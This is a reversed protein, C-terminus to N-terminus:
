RVVIMKMVREYNGAQLRYIYVGAPVFKGASNKGNWVVNYYGPPQSANVLTIMERGLVDFIKLAVVAEKPLQYKITTEASKVAGTFASARLPNPYNQELHFANPILNNREQVSTITSSTRFTARDPWTVIAVGDSVKLDWSYESNIKLWPMINLLVSTDKVAAFTTDLGQGKLNISYRVTDDPDYDFSQSWLFKIPPAIKSLQIIQHNAPSLLRPQSPDNNTIIFLQEASTGGSPAINTVSFNRPGRAADPTITIDAILSSSSNVIISNIVIGPGVNVVSSKNIFNTGTFVINLRQKRFGKVPAISKLTPAPNNVMFVRNESVAGAGNSVAFNRAGPEANAGITLNATLSDFRHVVINNVAINPGAEVSSVGSFFNTGKFGVHLTQLRNGVAPNIRTLTPMLSNVIFLVNASTGGGPAANTVSFNRPGPEANVFITINATLSDLRHVTINHVTIGAGANVTTAGSFFNAGKFGVNLNQPRIGSNPTISTLIPAPNNVTFVRSGSVAGDGNSVSFNRAGAAANFNITINATLSDARHVIIDNIIINPGVNVSTVGDIFNTGRFGVHLTQLRNGSQPSVSALTPSPKNVAFPLNGSTGGGPLSNAVSFDHSGAIVNAGITLNATLSDPRQVTVSNVTINSGANVNTVGSIFNAGKFGVNLTQLLKGNNPTLKTLNPAPNNVTFSQVLSTGGGPGANSVSFDRSGSAAGFSITLNATLNSPSSVSISNVTIGNGVNVTTVGAIFNSGKFVVNVTQGRESKAPTISTLGPAPNTVAFSQTNSIGGVPGNNIASVDRAGLAAKETITMSVTMSDSRNMTISNVTINTGINVTTVGNIFNAGKFGVSLTQLRNGTAPNLKALIPAPNNITFTQKESVGGGPSTNTVFFDRPGAAANAAITINAALSDSRHVTVSNVTINAGANVSTLGTFFNAGKFGVALTQLRNGLNPFIKTLAPAPITKGVGTIKIALSNENADNSAINLTGNQLGTQTPSFRITIDSSDGPALIFNTASLIDFRNYNSTVNYINLNAAGRNYVRLALIKSLKVLVSDFKLELPQVAIEPLLSAAGSGSVPIKAPNNTADNSFIKLTDIQAGPVPPTFRVAILKYANPPILHINGGILSFNPNSLTMNSINLDLVGTNSINIILDAIKAVSANGFSLAAPAAKLAPGPPLGTGSVPIKIPDFGSPVITVTATDNTATTPAYRMTILASDGGALTFTNAGVVAFKANTSSINKINVGNGGDNYLKFSLDKTNGIYVKKFKLEAVSAHLLNNNAISANPSVDLSKQVPYISLIQAFSITTLGFVLFLAARGTSRQIPAVM